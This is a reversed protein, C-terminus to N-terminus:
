QCHAWLRNGREEARTAGGCLRCTVSGTMRTCATLLTPMPLPLRRLLRHIAMQTVDAHPSTCSWVEGARAMQGGLLPRCVHSHDVGSQRHSSRRSSSMEGDEGMREFVCFLHRFIHRSTITAHRQLPRDRLRGNKAKISDTSPQLPLAAVLPGRLIAVGAM